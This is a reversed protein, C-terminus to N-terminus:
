RCRCSQTREAGRLWLVLADRARTDRLAAALERAVADARLARNVITFDHSALAGSLREAAQNGVDGARFVQVVRRLSAEFRQEELDHAILQAELLVGKSLYLSYFDKEETVPAEVNPFLCPLSQAECFRHVPAWDSGGIGSIAAFVPEASLRARLQAEWTEAAGSLEWVHLQWPRNVQGL